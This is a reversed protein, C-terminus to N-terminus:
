ENDKVELVITAAGPPVKGELVRPSALRQDIDLQVEVVIDGVHHQSPFRQTVRDMVIGLPQGRKNRRVRLVLYGSAIV